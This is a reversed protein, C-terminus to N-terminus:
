GCVSPCVSLCVSPHVSAFTIAIGRRALTASPYFPALNGVQKSLPPWCLMQPVLLLSTCKAARTMNSPDHLVWFVIAGFYVMGFWRSPVSVYKNQLQM